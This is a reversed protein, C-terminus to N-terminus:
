QVQIRAEKQLVRQMNTRAAYKIWDDLSNKLAEDKPIIGGKPIMIEIHESPAIPDSM